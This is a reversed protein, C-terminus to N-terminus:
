QYAQSNSTKDKVVGICEFEFRQLFNNLYQTKHWRKSVLWYFHVGKKIKKILRWIWILMFIIYPCQNFIPAM